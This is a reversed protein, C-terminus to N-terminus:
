WDTPINYCVFAGEDFTCEAQSGNKDVLGKGHPRGDLLTGLCMPPHFTALIMSSTSVLSAAVM